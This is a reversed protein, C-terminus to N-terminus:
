KTATKKIQERAIKLKNELYIKRGKAEKTDAMAKAYLYTDAIANVESKSLPYASRGNGIFTLRMSANRNAVIFDGITDCKAGKFTVMENSIGNNVFRYNSTGNFPVEESSINQNQASFEIKTHKIGKGYLLTTLYVNGSEDIRAEIGTREILPRGNAVNDVYYGEVMDKTKVFVFKNKLGEYSQTSVNTLSDNSAIDKLAVKEDILTKIHLGKRLADIDTPCKAKLSDLIGYAKSYNGSSLASNAENLYLASQQSDSKKSDCASLTIISAISLVALKKITAEKCM